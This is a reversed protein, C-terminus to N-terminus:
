WPRSNTRNEDLPSDAPDSPGGSDSEVVSKVVVASGDALTVRFVPAICGGSLPVSGTAPVGVIGEVRSALGHDM